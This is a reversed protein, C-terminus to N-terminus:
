LNKISVRVIDVSSKLVLVAIMIGVLLDPTKSQTIFVLGAAILVGINALVDNRTCLWVSKMNLNDNRHRLLLLACILNALLAMSSIVGMTQAEPIEISVYRFYAQGLVILGLIGMFCGKLLSVTAEVRPGKGLAYFTVGYIAADSLMDLSDALLATSQAFYSSIAEVFFMGLNILLVAWLTSKHKILVNSVDDDHCCDEM